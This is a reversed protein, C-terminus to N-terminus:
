KISEIKETLKLFNFRKKAVLRDVDGLWSLMM